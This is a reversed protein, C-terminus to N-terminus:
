FVTSLTENNTSVARLISVTCLICSTYWMKMYGQRHRAKIGSNREYGIRPLYQLFLENSARGPTQNRKAVAKSFEDQLIGGVLRDAAMHAMSQM